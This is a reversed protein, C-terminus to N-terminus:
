SENGGEVVAAVAVVVVAAVVVAAALVAAAAVAEAVSAVAAAVAAESVEWARHAAVAAPVRVRAVAAMTVDLVVVAVEQVVPYVAIASAIAM